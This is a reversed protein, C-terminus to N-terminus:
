PNLGGQEIGLHTKRVAEVFGGFPLDTIGVLGIHSNEGDILRGTVPQDIYEFWHTGVIAPDHAAAQVFRAYAEGRQAENWVSVVGKGFPGRDDSGFHFESILVPKDLKHVADLDVGHQPLDAYVNFSIVDCYQACSAVAEPTNAAFRGGLFLHHPDHRHIAAAVLGFYADAYARLWASYDDAIAPHAENPEPAAFNTANLGSWDIFAIGWAAALKAPEGYKKKLMAIFAQKADSRAEGRLTGIALGWRGQPGQGAWALENDAFYGLLWPDNHSPATAKTVAREVAQAFRPDFPDPMRGWYDFGSSVNGFNGNIYIPLTYPVRHLKGLADDSWNGITNFGWAQLRDLTRKRWVTLWDASEVRYLNAEYFDFWRGRNAGIGASAGREADRSDSIGYFTHWPSQDPPLDVFMFERGQVYTRSNDAAVANIGLSFFAHGDPTVLWWRGNAKQTHFWGTRKLAIAQRGGYTDLGHREALQADLTRREQMHATRLATDSDIKEPWTGRTYQGWRDVIGRYAHQLAMDGTATDVNGLLLQQAAQPAPMSLRIARVQALDISGEVTTAVFVAHGQDDFPMSPGVQMGFARPSTAHLPLVLTQAPGAPLGVVAHLHQEPAAGDIDITLTLAWPMANQVQIRLAGQGSWHWVGAAPTIILQPQSSPQFAYRQLPTGHSDHEVNGVRQVQQLQVGTSSVALDAVDTAMARGVPLACLAASALLAVRKM